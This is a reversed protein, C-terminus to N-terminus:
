FQVIAALTMGPPTSALKGTFDHTDASHSYDIGPGLWSKFIATSPTGGIAGKRGTTLDVVNGNMAVVSIGQGGSIGASAPHSPDVGPATGAPYALTSRRLRPMQVVTAAAAAANDALLVNHVGSM